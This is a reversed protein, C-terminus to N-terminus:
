QCSGILSARNTFFRLFSRLHAFFFGVSRLIMNGDRGAPAIVRVTEDPVPAFAVQKKLMIRILGAPSGHVPTVDRRLIEHFPLGQRDRKDRVLGVLDDAAAAGAAGDLLVPFKNKDIRSGLGVLLALAQRLARVPNMKFFAGFVRDQFGRIEGPLDGVAIEAIGADKHLVAPVVADRAGPDELLVARETVGALRERLHVALIRSDEHMVPVLRLRLFLEVIRKLRHIRAGARDAAARDATRRYRRRRHVMLDHGRRVNRDDAPDIIESPSVEDQDARLIKVAPLVDSLKKVALRVDRLRIVVQVADILARFINDKILLLNDNGARLLQRHHPM